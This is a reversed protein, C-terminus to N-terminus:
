VLEIVYARMRTCGTQFSVAECPALALAHGPQAARVTTREDNLEMVVECPELLVLAGHFRYAVKPTASNAELEVLYVRVPLQQETSEGSAGSTWSPPAVPLPTHSADDLAHGAAVPAPELM